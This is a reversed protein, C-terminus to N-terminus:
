AVYMRHTLKMMEANTKAYIRTTDIQKHGLMKSVQDIQAGHALMDTAFTHRLLHPYVPRSIGAREGLEKIIKEISTKGLRKHPLVAGVFLAPDEDKRTKLYEEVALISKANFFIHREQNGKGTIVAMRSVADIDSRNLGIIESVRAGTSYLVEFLARERPTKCANRVKELEIDNLPERVTEKYKVPEIGKLPNIPVRGTDHMFTYFTSLILRKGELTRNSIKRTSKIYDLYILVDVDQIQSLEKRAWAAFDDLLTSYQRLTGESCGKMRKRALFEQVEIPRDQGICAPLTEEKEIKYGRLAKAVALGIMKLQEATFNFELTAMVNSRIESTMDMRRRKINCPAPDDSIILDM